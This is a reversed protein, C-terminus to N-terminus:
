IKIFGEKDKQYAKLTEKQASEMQKILAEDREKEIKKKANKSFKQAEANLPDIALIEEAGRVVKEYKKLQLLTRIEELGKYIFDRKEEINLQQAHKKAAAFLDHLKKSTPDIQLLSQYFFEIDEYKNSSLLANNKSLEDDIWAKKIKVILNHYLEPDLLYKRIKETNELAQPFQKEAILQEIHKVEEQWVSQQQKSLQAAYLNEAKKIVSTLDPYDNVYPTLKKLHLLLEEYKEEKWLPELTKLDEKVANRNILHVEKEIKNKLRIVKINEPDCNLIELCARHAEAWKEEQILQYITNYLDDLSKKPDSKIM